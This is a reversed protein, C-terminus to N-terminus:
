NFIYKVFLNVSTSIDYGANKLENTYKARDINKGYSNIARIWSKTSKELSNFKVLETLKVETTISDSIICPLGAAQAEIVSNPMGEYLSPFVFYDMASLLEPIDSRVGTFILANSIGMVNALNKIHNELTGNGVLMLVSNQNNKHYDNFIKLLLEHNKQLQFRGVHGIVVTDEKINFEQRISKRGEIRYKYDNLDLANPIIKVEGNFFSKKGFTYMGAVKSPALKVDIYKKYLLKGIAHLIKVYLSKGDSSNSSRVACIKAGAKKAIKIDLFSMANSAIRLVYKYNNCQIIQFLNRKFKKLCKSKPPIYYIRGGLSEIEDQYFCKDEINICFDMQYKTKDLRRYIKMLFTEAGGSNMNSLLCLLRKM